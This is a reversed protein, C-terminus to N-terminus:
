GATAPAPRPAGSRCRALFTGLLQMGSSTLV